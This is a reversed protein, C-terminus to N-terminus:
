AAGKPESLELEADWFANAVRSLGCDAFAAGIAGLHRPDTIRLLGWPTEVLAADGVIEIEPAQESLRDPPPFGYNGAPSQEAVRLPQRLPIIQAM